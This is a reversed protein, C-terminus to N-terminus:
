DDLDVGCRAAALNVVETPDPYRYVVEQDPGRKRRIRLHLQRTGRLAAVFRPAGFQRGELLAAKGVASVRYWRSSGGDYATHLRFGGSNLGAADIGISDRFTLMVLLDPRRGQLCGITVALPEAGLTAVV